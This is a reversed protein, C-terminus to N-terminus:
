EEFPNAETEEAKDRNKSGKPRGKPPGDLVCLYAGQARKRVQYFKGSHEFTSKGQNKAVSLATKAAERRIEGLVNVAETEQGLLADFKALLTELEKDAM